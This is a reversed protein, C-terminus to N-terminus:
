LYLVKGIDAIFIIYNIKSNLINRIEKPSITPFNENFFNNTTGVINEKFVSFINFCSIKTYILINLLAITYQAFHIKTNNLKM